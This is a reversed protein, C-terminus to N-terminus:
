RFAVSDGAGNVISTPIEQRGGNELVPLASGAANARFAM